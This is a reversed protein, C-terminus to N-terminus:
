GSGPSSARSGGPMMGIRRRTASTGSAFCRPSTTRRASPGTIQWFTRNTYAFTLRNSDTFEHLDRRLSLQFNWEFDEIKGLPTGDNASSNLSGLAFFKKNHEDLGFYTGHDKEAV